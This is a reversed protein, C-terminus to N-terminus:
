YTGSRTGTFTMRNEACASGVSTAGDASLRWTGTSSLGLGGPWGSVGSLDPTSLTGASADFYDRTASVAISGRIDGYQLSISQNYTQSLVGVVVQLRKYSGPLETVTPAALLPAFPLTRTALDHFAITSTRSFNSGSLTTSALYFDTPRLSSAPVGVLNLSFSTGGTATFTFPPQTRLPNVTCAATTM